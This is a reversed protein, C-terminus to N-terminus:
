EITRNASKLKKKRGVKDENVAGTPRVPGEREKGIKREGGKEKNYDGRTTKEREGVSSKGQYFHYRSRGTKEGGPCAGQATGAIRVSM